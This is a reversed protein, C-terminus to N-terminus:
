INFKEEWGLEGILEEMGGSVSAESPSVLSILIATMMTITMADTANATIKSNPQTKRTM